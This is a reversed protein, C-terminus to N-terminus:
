ATVKEVTWGPNAKEALVRADMQSTAVVSYTFRSVCNRGLDRVMKINWTVEKEFNM